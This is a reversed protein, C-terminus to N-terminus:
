LFKYFHLFYILLKLYNVEKQHIRKHSVIYILFQCKFYASRQSNNLDEDISYLEEDDNNNM